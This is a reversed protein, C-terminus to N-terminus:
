GFLAASVTVEREGNYHKILRPIEIQEVTALRSSFHYKGTWRDHLNQHNETERYGQFQEDLVVRIDVEQDGLM